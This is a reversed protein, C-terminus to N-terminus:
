LTTLTAPVPRRRRGEESGLQSPGAAVLIPTEHFDIIDSRQPCISQHKPWHSRRYPRVTPNRYEGPLPSALVIRVM